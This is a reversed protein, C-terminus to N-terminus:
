QDEKGFRQLYSNVSTPPYEHQEVVMNNQDVILTFGSDAYIYKNYQQGYYVSGNVIKNPNGYMELFGRIPQLDDQPNVVRKFVFKNDSFIMINPHNNNPSPLYLKTMGNSMVEKKEVGEIIDPNTPFEEEKNDYVVSKTETTNGITNVSTTDTQTNNNETTKVAQPVTIQMVTIIIILLILPLLLFFYTKYRYFFDKYKQLKNNM